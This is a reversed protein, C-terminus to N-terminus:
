LVKTMFIASAPCLDSFQRTGRIAQPASSRDAVRYGLSAFFEAATETLLYVELAGASRAHDEAARVLVKGLGLGRRAPAVALSRLLAVGPFLELGVVGDPAAHDGCGMFHELPEPLDDVALGARTLLARAADPSPSMHIAWQCAPAGTPPDTPPTQAPKDPM